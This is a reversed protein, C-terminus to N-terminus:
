CDLVPVMISRFYESVMSAVSSGLKNQKKRRIQLAERAYPMRNFITEVLGMPSHFLVHRQQALVM